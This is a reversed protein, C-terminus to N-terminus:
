IIGNKELPFSQIKWGLSKTLEESAALQGAATAVFGTNVQGAQQGTTGPSNPYM